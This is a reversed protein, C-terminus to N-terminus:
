ARPKPVDDLEPLVSHHPAKFADHHGRSQNPVVVDGHVHKRDLLGLSAITRYLFSASGAVVCSWWVTLGWATEMDTGSTWAHALAFFWSLYGLRHIWPWLVDPVVKRFVAAGLGLLLANVSLAAWVLPIRGEFNWPVFAQYWAAQADPGIMPMIAHALLAVVCMVSVARHLEHLLVRSVRLSPMSELRERCLPESRASVVTGLVLNLTFLLLLACGIGRTLFWPDTM